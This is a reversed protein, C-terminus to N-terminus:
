QRGIRRPLIPTYIGLRKRKRRKEIYYAVYCLEPIESVPTGTILRKPFKEFVENEFLTSGGLVIEYTSAPLIDFYLRIEHLPDDEFSWMAEVYGPSPVFSGDALEFFIQENTPSLIEYGLGRAYDESMLNLESGTDAFASVKNYDVYGPLHQSPTGITHIRYRQKTPIQQYSIRHRYTTLTLTQQLFANGLIVDDPCNELINFTVSYVSSADGEFSWELQVQGRTSVPRGNALRFERESELTPQSWVGLRQIINASVFNEQAGTDPVASVRMGGLLGRLQARRTPLKRTRPQTIKPIFPEPLRWIPELHYYVDLTTKDDMIILPLTMDVAVLASDYPM